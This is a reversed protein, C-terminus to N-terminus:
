ISESLPRVVNSPAENRDLNPNEDTLLHVLVGSTFARLPRNQFHRFGAGYPRSTKAGPRGLIADLIADQAVM